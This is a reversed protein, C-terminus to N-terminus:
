NGEIIKIEEETLGYLEYVLQNIKDESYAIRSKLQEIKEPLKAEPLEANLKLLLDVHKVIEDHSKEESKNSFVKIPLNKVTTLSIRPFLRQKGKETSNFVYFGMLKSNLLGLLFKNEDNRSRVIILAKNPVHVTNTICCNLTDSGTIERILIREGKCFEWDPRNYDWDGYSVFEKFKEIFYYRKVNSGGSEPFFTKNLKIESHYVREKTVIYM